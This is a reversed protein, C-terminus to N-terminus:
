SGLAAHWLRICGSAATTAVATVRAPTIPQNGYVLLADLITSTVHVSDDWFIKGIPAVHVVEAASLRALEGRFAPRGMHCVDWIIGVRAGFRVSNARGLDSVDVRNQPNGDGIVPRLPKGLEFVPGHASVLMLDVEVQLAEVFQDKTTVITKFAVGPRHENVRQEMLDLFRRADPHGAFAIM